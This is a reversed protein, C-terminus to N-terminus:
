LTEVTLRFTDTGLLRRTAIRVAEESTHRSNWGIGRVKTTDLLV